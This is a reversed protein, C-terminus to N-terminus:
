ELMGNLQALSATELCFSVFEEQSIGREDETEVKLFAQMFLKERLLPRLAKSSAVLRQLAPDLEAQELAQQLEYLELVGNGDHDLLTFLERIKREEAQEDDEPSAQLHNAVEHSRQQGASSIRPITVSALTANENSLQGQDMLQAYLRQCSTLFRDWSLESQAGFLEEMHAPQKSLWRLLASRRALAHIESDHRLAYKIELKDVTGSVDYDMSAFISQLVFREDHDFQSAWAAVRARTASDYTEQEEERRGSQHVPIDTRSEKWRQDQPFPAAFAYTSSIEDLAQDSLAAISVRHKDHHHSNNNNNNNNYASKRRSDTHKDDRHAPKSHHTKIQKLLAFKQSSSHSLSPIQNQKM